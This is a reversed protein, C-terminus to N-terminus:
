DNVNKWHGFTGTLEAVSVQVHAPPTGSPTVLSLDVVPLRGLGFTRLCLGVPGLDFGPSWLLAGVAFTLVPDLLPRQPPPLWAPSLVGDMRQRENKTLKEPSESLDLPFLLAPDSSSSELSRRLLSASFLRRAESSSSESWDESWDESSSRGMRLLTLRM